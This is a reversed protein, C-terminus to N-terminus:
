EHDWAISLTTSSNPPPAAPRLRLIGCIESRLAPIGDDIQALAQCGAVKPFQRESFPARHHVASPHEVGNEAAPLHIADQGNLRSLRERRHQLRRGRISGAATRVDDLGHGIWSCQLTPEIRACKGRRGWIGVAVGSPVAKVSGAAGIPIRRKELIKYETFIRPELDPCFCEIQRVM